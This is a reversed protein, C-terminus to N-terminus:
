GRAGGPCAGSGRVIWADRYKGRWVPINVSFGAFVPDKGSDPVGATRAAGTEIYGLDLTVDPFFEKKALAVPTAALSFTAIIAPVSPIIKM